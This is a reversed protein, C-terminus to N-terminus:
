VREAERYEREAAEYDGAEKHLIGLLLHADPVGRRAAETFARTAEETRGQKRHLLGEVLLVRASSPDAERLNRLALPTLPSQTVYYSALAFLYQIVLHDPLTRQARIAEALAGNPEDMSILTSILFEWYDPNSGDLDRARRMAPLAPGPQNLGL